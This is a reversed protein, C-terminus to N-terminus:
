RSQADHQARLLEKLKALGRRYLGAVAGETKGLARAAEALDLHLMERAMVADRQDPPLQQIAEALGIALDKKLLQDLPTDGSDIVNAEWHVTSQELAQRLQQERGVDRKEAHEARYRDIYLNNQIQELWALRERDTTGLCPPTAPHVARLLTEQVLDSEDFRVRVKPNLRILQARTRLYQRYRDLDWGDLTPM